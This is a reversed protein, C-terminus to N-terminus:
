KLKMNQNLRQKEQKFYAELKWPKQNNGINNGQLM